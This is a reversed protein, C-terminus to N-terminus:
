TSKRSLYVVYYIDKDRNPSQYVLFEIWKLLEFGEKKLSSELYKFGHRYVTLAAAPDPERSHDDPDIVYKHSQGPKIDEATFCFIGNPRIIRSVERFIDELSEFSLFVSLALVHNFSDDKYPYPMVKLDHQELGCTFGKARCIDLMRESIDMGYIKLGVRAFPESSLGTGIGLDLLSEGPEVYPFALGLSIEPGRWNYEAATRDYNNDQKTDM